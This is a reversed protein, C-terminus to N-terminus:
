LCDKNTYAPASDDDQRERSRPWPWPYALDEYDLLTNINASPDTADYRYLMKNKRKPNYPWAGAALTNEPRLFEFRFDGLVRNDRAFVTLFGYFEHDRQQFHYMRGHTWGFARAERTLKSEPVLGGGSTAVRASRLDFGKTMHSTTSKTWLELCASWEIADANLGAATKATSGRVVAPVDSCFAIRVNPASQGWHHYTLYTHHDPQRAQRDYGVARLKPDGFDFFTARAM